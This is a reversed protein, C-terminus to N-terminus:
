INEKKESTKVRNDCYNYALIATKDLRFSIKERKARNM